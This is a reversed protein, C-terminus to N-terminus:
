SLESLSGQLIEPGLDLVLVCLDFHQFFHHFAGVHLSLRLVDVYRAELLLNVTQLPAAVLVGRRVISATATTSVIATDRRPLAPEAATDAWCRVVVHIVVQNAEITGYLLPISLKLLCSGIVVSTLATYRM